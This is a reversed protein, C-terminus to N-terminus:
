YCDDSASVTVANAPRCESPSINPSIQAFKSATVSVNHWTLAHQVTDCCTTSYQWMGIARRVFKSATM